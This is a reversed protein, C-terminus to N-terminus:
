CCSLQHPNRAGDDSVQSASTPSGIGSAMFDLYLGTQRAISRFARRSSGFDAPVTLASHGESAEDGIEERGIWDSGNSEQLTRHSVV